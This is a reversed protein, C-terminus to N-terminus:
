CLLDDRDGINMEPSKNGPVTPRVWTCHTGPLSDLTYVPSFEALFYQDGRSEPGSYITVTKRTGLLSPPTSRERRIPNRTRSPDHDSIISWRYGWTEPGPTRFMVGRYHVIDLFVDRDVGSLVNIYCWTTSHFPSSRLSHSFRWLLSPRWFENSPSVNALLTPSFSRQYHNRDMLPSFVKQTETGGETSMILCSDSSM